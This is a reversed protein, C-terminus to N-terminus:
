YTKGDAYRQSAVRQRTRGNGRNRGKHTPTLAHCNPCLLRLNEETNHDSNGDVHDMELPIPKGLWTARGCGIGECRHPRTRLLHARRGHDHTADALTRVKIKDEGSAICADCYQNRLRCPTQCVKCLRGTFLGSLPKSLDHTNRGGFPSCGLCFKRNCLNRQKGDMVVLNPFPQACKLCVPM